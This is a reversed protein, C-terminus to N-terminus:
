VGELKNNIRPNNISTWEGCFTLFSQILYSSSFTLIYFFIAMTKSPASNLKM